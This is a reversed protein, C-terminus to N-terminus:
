DGPFRIVEAGAPTILARWTAEPTDNPLFRVSGDGLLVNAGERFVGGFKPLPKQPDYELDDPKTWIVPEAAEVVMLTNSTGDTVDTFRLGRLTFGPQTFGPQQGPGLLGGKTFARYYTHGGYDEIGPPAYTKPMRAVLKQNHPSDWPENLKFEMYLSQQEIYPLIAVRWSLGPKKGDPGAFGAPLTMNADTHSHLSLGIQKLNNQSQMYARRDSKSYGVGPVDDDPKTNCAPLALLVAALAAPALPAGLRVRTM